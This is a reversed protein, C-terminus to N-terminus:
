MSQNLKTFDLTGTDVNIANKLQVQLQAAAKSAELIEATLKEGGFNTPNIAIQQLTRQLDMM